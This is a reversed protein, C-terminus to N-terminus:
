SDDESIETEKLITPGEKEVVNRSYVDGVNTYTQMHVPFSNTRSISKMTKDVEKLGEGLKKVEERLEDVESIYVLFGAYDVFNITETEVYKKKKGKPTYVM